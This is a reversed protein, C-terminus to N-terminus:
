RMRQEIMGRSTTQLYVSPASELPRRGDVLFYNRYAEARREIQYDKDRRRTSVKSSVKYQLHIPAWVRRLLRRFSRFWVAESVHSLKVRWLVTRLIYGTNISLRM